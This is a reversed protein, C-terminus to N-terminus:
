VILPASLSPMGGRMVSKHAFFSTREAVADNWGDVWPGEATPKAVRAMCTSAMAVWGTMNKSALKTRNPSLRRLCAMVNGLRRRLSPVNIQHFPM